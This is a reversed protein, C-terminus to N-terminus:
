FGQANRWDTNIQGDSMDQLILTAKGFAEQMKGKAANVQGQAGTWAEKWAGSSVASLGNGDTIVQDILQQMKNNEQHFRDLIENVKRTDIHLSM